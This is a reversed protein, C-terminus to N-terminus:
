ARVRMRLRVVANGVIDDQGMSECHPQVAGLELGGLAANNSDGQVSIHGDWIIFAWFTRAVREM